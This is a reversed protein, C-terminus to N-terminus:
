VLRLVRYAWHRREMLCLSVRRHVDAALGEPPRVRCSTRTPRPSPSTRNAARCSQHDAVGGVDFGRRLPVRLGVVDFTTVVVGRPAATIRRHASPTPATVRKARSTPM